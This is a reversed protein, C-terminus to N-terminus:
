GGYGMGKRRVAIAADLKVAEQRSRRISCLCAAKRERALAVHRKRNM